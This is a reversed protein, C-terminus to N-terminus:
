YSNILLYFNKSGDKGMPFVFTTRVLFVTDDIRFTPFENTKCYGFLLTDKQVRKLGVIGSSPLHELIVLKVKQLFIQLPVSRLMYMALVLFSSVVIFTIAPQQPYRYTIHM